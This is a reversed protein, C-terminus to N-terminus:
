QALKSLLVKDEQLIKQLLNNSALSYQKKADLEKLFDLLESLATDSFNDLVKSIEEKLENKSM